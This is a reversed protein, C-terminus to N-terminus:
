TGSLSKKEGEKTEQTPNVNQSMKFWSVIDSAWEPRIKNRKMDEKFREMWKLKVRGRPHSGEFQNTLMSKAVNDDDRRQVHSFWSLIKKTIALVFEGGGGGLLSM